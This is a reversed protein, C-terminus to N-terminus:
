FKFNSDQSQQNLNPIQGQFNFLSISLNSREALTERVLNQFTKLEATSYTILMNKYNMIEGPTASERKLKEM